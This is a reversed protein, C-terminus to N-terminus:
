LNLAVVGDMLVARDHATRRCQDRVTWEGKQIHQLFTINPRSEPIARLGASPAQGDLRTGIQILPRYMGALLSILHLGKKTDVLLLLPLGFNIDRALSSLFATELLAV